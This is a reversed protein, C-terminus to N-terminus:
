QINAVEKLIITWKEKSYEASVLEFIKPINTLKYYFLSNDVEDLIYFYQGAEFLHNTHVNGDMDEINLTPCEITVVQKGRRYNQLIRNAVTLMLGSSNGDEEFKAAYNFLENNKLKATLMSNDTGQSFNVSEQLFITSLVQYNIDDNITVQGYKHTYLSPDQKDAISPYESWLLDAYWVEIKTIVYLVPNVSFYTINKYNVNCTGLYKKADSLAKADVQSINTWSMPPYTLIKVDPAGEGFTATMSNSADGSTTIKTVFSNMNIDMLETTTLTGLDLTKYYTRFSYYRYYYERANIPGTWKDTQAGGNGSTSIVGAQENTLTGSANGLSNQVYASNYIDGEVKTYRNNLILKGDISYCEDKKLKFIM